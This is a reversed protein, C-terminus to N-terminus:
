VNLVQSYKILLKTEKHTLYVRFNLPCLSKWTVLVLAFCEVHMVIIHLLKQSLHLQMIAHKYLRRWAPARAQFSLELFHVFMTGTIQISTPPRSTSLDETDTSCLEVVSPCVSLCVSPLRLVCARRRLRASVGVSCRESRISEPLGFCM